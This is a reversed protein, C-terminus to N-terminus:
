YRVVQSQVADWIETPIVMLRDDDIYGGCRIAWALNFANHTMQELGNMDNTFGDFIENLPVIVKEVGNDLGLKVVKAVCEGPSSGNVILTKGRSPKFKRTFEADFEYCFLWGQEMRQAALNDLNLYEGYGVFVGFTGTENTM